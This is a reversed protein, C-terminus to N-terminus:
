AAKVYKKCKCQDRGGVGFYCCKRPKGLLWGEHLQVLHGCECRQEEVVM